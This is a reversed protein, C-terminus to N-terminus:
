RILQRDVGVLVLGSVDDHANALPVPRGRKWDVAKSFV